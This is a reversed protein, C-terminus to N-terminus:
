TTITGTAWLRHRREVDRLGAKNWLYVLYLAGLIEQVLQLPDAALRALLGSWYEPPGPPFEWGFAPWLFTEKTAWMGDLVLHFLCGVALALLRKRWLGGRRTAVTVGVLLAFAFVLTHGFIRGSSFTDAFLLTGIPKDILDPLISGLILFRLDVNPDRFVYRFALISGGAHWFIM